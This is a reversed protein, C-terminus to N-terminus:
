PNAPAPPGDLYPALYAAWRRWRDRDRIPDTPNHGPIPYAFFTVPVGNDLLARRLKYAQPITVRWDGVNALILTPTKVM